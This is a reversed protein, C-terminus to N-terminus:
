TQNMGELESLDNSGQHHSEDCRCCIHEEMKGSSISQREKNVPALITSITKNQEMYMQTLERM